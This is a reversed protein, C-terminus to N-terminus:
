DIAVTASGVPQGLDFEIKASQSSNLFGDLRLTYTGLKNLPINTFPSAGSGAFSGLSFEVGGPDVISCLVPFGSNKIKILALEAVAGPVADFTREFAVSSSNPKAKVAFSKASTPFKVSTTIAYAGPIAFFGTALELRFTGHYPFTFTTKKGESLTKQELLAGSATRLSALASSGPLDNAYLKLKGGAIGDVTATDVDSSTSLTGTLVDGPRFSKFGVNLTVPVDLFESPTASNRYRLITSYVGNPLGTPQFSISTSQTANTALNGAAPTVALWSVNSPIKAVDWVLTSGSSGCNSVIRTVSSPAPGSGSYSAAIASTSDLCLKAVAPPAKVTLTVPVIEVDAPNAPNSIRLNTSYSGIGLGSVAFSVQVNAGASGAAVSGSTPSESLFSMSPDETVQYSATTGLTGCNKVTITAPLPQAGGIEYTVQIPASSALCLNPGVILGSLIRVRGSDTQGNGNWDPAGAVHDEFGDLDLDGVGAVSAGFECSAATDAPLIESGSKGSFRRVSESNTTGPSGVVFDARSDGDVDGLKGISMGFYVGSVAGVPATGYIVGGTKGSFATVQGNNTAGADANPAGVLVDPTGDGDLDGPGCVATGFYDNTAKGFFSALTLKKATSLLVAGGANSATATDLYPIGAVIDPAADNDVPGVWSLSSGFQGDALPGFFTHLTSWAKSSVIRVSGADHGQTDELPSGVALDMYGDGDVDGSGTVAWGFSEGVAKGGLAQLQAGTKGSFVRVQGSNAIGAFDFKPAGVALDPFGDANADGPGTLAYGFWEGSESGTFQYIPTFTKGSYIVARGVVTGATNRWGYGGAAIDPFGDGNVDGVATVAAGLFESPSVGDIPTTLDGRAVASGAALHVFGLLIAFRSSSRACRM